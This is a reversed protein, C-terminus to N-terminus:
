AEEDEKLETEMFMSRREDQEWEGWEAASYQFAWRSGYRRFMEARAEEYTGKIRVFHGAHPQGSGFTFIWEDRM